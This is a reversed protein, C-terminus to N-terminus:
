NLDFIKNMLMKMYMKLVLYFKNNKMNEVM